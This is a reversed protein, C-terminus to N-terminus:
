FDTYLTQYTTYTKASIGVIQENDELVINTSGCDVYGAEFIM